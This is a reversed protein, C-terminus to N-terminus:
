RLKNQLDERAALGESSYSLGRNSLVQEVLLTYEANMVLGPTLSYNGLCFTCHTICYLLFVFM